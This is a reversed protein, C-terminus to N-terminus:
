CKVVGLRLLLQVVDGIRLDAMNVASRIMRVIFEDQSIGPIWSFSRREIMPFIYLLKVCPENLGVANKIPYKESVNLGDARSISSCLDDGYAAFRLARDVVRVGRPRGCRFLGLIGLTDHSGRPLLFSLIFGLARYASSCFESCRRLGMFVSMFRASDHFRCNFLLRRPM